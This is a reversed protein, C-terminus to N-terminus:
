KANRSEEHVGASDDSVDSSRSSGSPSHRDQPGGRGNAVHIARVTRRVVEEQSPTRRPMSRVRSLPSASFSLSSPEEAVRPPPPSVARPEPRESVSIWRRGTSTPDVPVRLGREESTTATQGRVQAGLVGASGANEGAAAGKHARSPPLVSTNADVASSKLSGFPSSVSPLEFDSAEAAAESASPSWRRAVAEGGAGALGNSPRRAKANPEEQEGKVTYNGWGSASVRRNVTTDSHDFRKLDEREPSDRGGGDDSNDHARLFAGLRSPTADQVDGRLARALVPAARVARDADRVTEDGNGVEVDDEDIHRFPYQDRRRQVSGPIQVEEEYVGEPILTSSTLRSPSEDSEVYVNIESPGTALNRSPSRSGGEPPPNQVRQQQAGGGVGRAENSFTLQAHAAATGRFMSAFQSFWGGGRAVDTAQGQVSIGPYAPGVSSSVADEGSVGQPEPEEPHHPNGGGTLFVHEAHALAAASPREM